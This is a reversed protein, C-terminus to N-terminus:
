FVLRVRGRGAREIRVNDNSAPLRRPELAGRTLRIRLGATVFLGHTFGTVDAPYKGGEVELALARAFRWSAQAQLWPGGGLGGSRAGGVVGGSWAGARGDLGLTYDQYRVAGAGTASASADMGWTSGLDVRVHAAAGILASRTADIRRVGGGEGALWALWPGSAFALVPGATAVGSITGGQLWSGNGQALIGASWVRAGGLPVLTLASAGAQGATGGSTFQSLSFSGGLRLRPSAIVLRGAVSGASGSLSDAYRAHLGGVRVSLDQGQLPPAHCLLLGVAGAAFALRM